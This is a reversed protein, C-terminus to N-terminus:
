MTWSWHRTGLICQGPWHRISDTEATIELLTGSVVRHRQGGSLTVGNGGVQTADGHPFSSIDAELCCAHLVEKYWAESVTKDRAYPGCINSRISLNVLWPTQACYAVRGRFASVHGSEVRLEGLLARLLTTKGSGTPGLLATVSGKEIRFTVHSIAASCTAAPRVTLDEATIVAQETDVKTVFTQLEAESPHEPVISSPGDHEMGDWAASRDPVVSLLLFTQLREFCGMAAASQPLITLLKSAPTTVLTLLALSTFAQAVGLSETHRVTAQM